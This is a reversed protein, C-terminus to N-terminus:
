KVQLRNFIRIIQDYHSQRDAPAEHRYEASALMFVSYAMECFNYWREENIGQAGLLNPNDSAMYQIARCLDYTLTAEGVEDTSVETGGLSQALLFGAERVVRNQLAMVVEDFRRGNYINEVRTMHAKTVFTSDSGYADYEPYLLYAELLLELNFAPMFELAISKFAEAKEPTYFEEVMRGVVDISRKYNDSTNM